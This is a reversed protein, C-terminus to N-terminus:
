GNDNTNGKTRRTTPMGDFELVISLSDMITRRNPSSDWLRGDPLRVEWRYYVTPNDANGNRAYAVRDVCKWLQWGIPELTFKKVPTGLPLKHHEDSM